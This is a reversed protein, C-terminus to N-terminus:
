KVIYPNSSEMRLFSKNMKADVTLDRVFNQLFKSKPKVLQPKNQECERYYPTKKLDPMDWDKITSVLMSITM